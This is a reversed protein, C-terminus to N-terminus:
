SFSVSLPNISTISYSMYVKDKASYYFRTVRMKTADDEVDDDEQQSDEKLLELQARTGCEDLIDELDYALEHLDELWLKVVESETQRQEADSLLAAIMKLTREWKQITEAELKNGKALKLFQSIAASALKEFLVQLFPVLVIEAM